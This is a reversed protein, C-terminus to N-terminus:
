YVRTVSEVESPLAVQRTAGPWSGDARRLGGSGQVSVQVFGVSEFKERVAANSAWSKMGNLRISASYRAGQELLIGAM